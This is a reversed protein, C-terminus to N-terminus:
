GRKELLYGRRAQRRRRIRWRKWWGVAFHALATSLLAAALAAALYFGIM